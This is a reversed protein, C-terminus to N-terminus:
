LPKGDELALTRFSQLWNVIPKPRDDPLFLGAHPFLHPLGDGPQAWHIERVYPKALALSLWKVAWRAQRRESPRSPWLALEQNVNPDAQPDAAPSSPAAFTIHLPLGVVQNYHDILRSFEFIDRMLTGPPGYGIAIELGIGSLGLESRALYEALHLPGLQFSSSSLWGAWPREFDIVFQAQPDIGRAILLVRATLRIQEEENLGLIEGVGARHILHWTAIKGRYRTIVQRVLDEAMALIEDFDGGWLWLWDPLAGPRLDILPGATPTLKHARCWALQSDMDDWRLRSEQPALSAWNCTIRGTNLCAALADAAPWKQIDGQLSCSLMTPLKPSYERRRYLIQETYASILSNSARFAASLCEAAAKSSVEPNARSTVARALAHQAQEIQTALDDPTLLGLLSWEATQNRLDNLRGRALEVALDHPELREALTATSVFPTGFGEVPWPVHFRGSESNERHCLLLGPRIEITSRGPTRDLGTMYGSRLHPLKNVLNPPHIRFKLVGM